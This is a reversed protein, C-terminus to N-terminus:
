PNLSRSHSHGLLNWNRLPTRFSFLTSMALLPCTSLLTLNQPKWPFTQCRNLAKFCTKVREQLLTHPNRLKKAHLRSSPRISSLVSSTSKWRLPAKRTTRGSKKQSSPIKWKRNPNEWLRHNADTATAWPYTERLNSNELEFCINEINTQGMKNNVHHKRHFIM